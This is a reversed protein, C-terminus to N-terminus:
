RWTTNSAKAVGGQQSAFVGAILIAILVVALAVRLSIHGNQKQGGDLNVVKECNNVLTNAKALLEKERELAPGFMRKDDEKVEAEAKLKADTVSIDADKLRARPREIGRIEDPSLEFLVAEVDKRYKIQLESRAKAMTAAVLARRAAQMDAKGSMVNYKKMAQLGTDLKRKKIDKGTEGFWHAFEDFCVEGSDDVDLKAFEKELASGSIPICLERLMLAFEIKDITGTGDLDFMDFCDKMKQEEQKETPLQNIANQKAIRIAKQRNQEAKLADKSTSQDLMDLLFERLAGLRLKVWTAERKRRQIEADHAAEHPLAAKASAELEAATPPSKRHKGSNPSPMPLASVIEASSLTKAGTAVADQKIEAHAEAEVLAVDSDTLPPAAPVGLLEEELERVEKTSLECILPKKVRFAEIIEQRAKKIAECVLVRKALLRDTQGSLDRATKQMKLRRQALSAKKGKFFKKRGCNYWALFENFNVKGNGSKDVAGHLAEAESDKMPVCLDQLLLKFEFADIGGSADVDYVNFVDHIEQLAQKEEPLEAVRKKRALRLKKQRKAEHKLFIKGANESLLRLVEGRVKHLRDDLYLIEERRRALELTRDDSM